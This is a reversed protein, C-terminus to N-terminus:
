WLMTWPATVAAGGAAMQVTSTGVSEAASIAALCITWLSLLTIGTKSPSLFAELRSLTDM